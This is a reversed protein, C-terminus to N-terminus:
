AQDPLTKTTSMSAPPRRAKVQIKFKTKGNLQNRIDQISIEKYKFNTHLDIEEKKGQSVVKM